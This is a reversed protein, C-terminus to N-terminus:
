DKRRTRSENGAENRKGALVAKRFVAQIIDREKATLTMRMFIDQLKATIFERNTRKMFGLRDLSERFRRGAELQAEHDLPLDRAAGLSPYPRWALSFLVLTVAVGLNYSPQRGVQPMRFRYNTLSMEQATLGTRENGFVLGFRVGSQYEHVRSITKELDILPFGREKRATSGFVVHLGALADELRDSFVAEELVRGAHVATVRAKGALDAPGVIRLERFGTNAMGRAALGVNEPIVPRVLIVVFRSPDVAPFKSAGSGLRSENM